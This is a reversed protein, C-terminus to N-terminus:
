EVSTLPSWDSHLNLLTFVDSFTPDSDSDDRNTMPVPPKCLRARNRSESSALPEFTAVTDNRRTEGSTSPDM